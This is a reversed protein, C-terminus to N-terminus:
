LDQVEALAEGTDALTKSSKVIARASHIRLEVCEPPTECVGVADWNVQVLGGVIDMVSLSREPVASPRSSLIRRLRVAAFTAGTSKFSRRLVMVRLRVLASPTGILKLRCTLAM